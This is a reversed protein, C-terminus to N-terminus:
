RLWEEITQNGLAVFGDHKGWAIPGIATLDADCRHVTLKIEDHYPKEVDYYAVFMEVAAKPTMANVLLDNEGDPEHTFYLTM